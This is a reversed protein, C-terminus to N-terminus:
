SHSDSAGITIVVNGKKHGLEAYEHAQVIHELSYSRDIVPKLAGETIIKHLADLYETKESTMSTVSIYRGEKKLIAKVASSPLKGVADFVVDFTRGCQAIDTKTYDIVTNAGISRALDANGGSCVATVIGGLFSAIQVSYTGVSGSAGYILINDGKKINAKQLLGFATMGGVPLAAAEEFTLGDPKFAVVGQKWVEPVCVYESYAGNRLGTTTGYVSDGKRFLKVNSGVEEVVGSFEYGLVQRNPKTIGFMLRLFLTFIASGPFRGQRVWITGSTVTSAHVRVLIENNKPVPKEVKKLHLVSPPGYETYVATKM